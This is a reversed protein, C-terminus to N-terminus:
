QKLKYVNELKEYEPCKRDKNIRNILIQQSFVLITIFVLCFICLGFGIGSVDYRENNKAIISYRFLFFIIILIPISYIIIQATTM